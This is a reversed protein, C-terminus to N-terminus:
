RGTDTPLVDEEASGCGMAPHIRRPWTAGDIPSPDHTVRVFYFDKSKTQCKVSSQDSSLAKSIASQLAELGATNGVIVVDDVGEDADCFLMAHVHLIKPM